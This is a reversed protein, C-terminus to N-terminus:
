LNPRKLPNIALCNHMFKDFSFDIKATLFSNSIPFPKCFEKPSAKWGQMIFNLADIAADSDIKVLLTKKRIEYIVCGLSWIDVETGYQLVGLLIEPPRYNLTIMDPTNTRGYSPVSLGFDCLKVTDGGFVLINQTKLDRHIIRNAHIYALGSKIQNIFSDPDYKSSPNRIFDYLNSDAKEFVMCIYKRDQTPNVKLLKVINAHNMAQLVLIERIINPQVGLGHKDIEQMKVVKTSSDSTFVKGFSGSGIEM